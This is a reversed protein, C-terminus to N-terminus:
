GRQRELGATFSRFVRMVGGVLLLLALVALALVGFVGVLQLLGLGLHTLGSILNAIATSVLLVTDLWRPLQMLAYLIGVGALVLLLGICAQALRSSLPRSRFLM